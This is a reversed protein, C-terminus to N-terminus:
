SLPGQADLLSFSRRCFLLKLTLVAGKNREHQAAIRLHPLPETRISMVNKVMLRPGLLRM